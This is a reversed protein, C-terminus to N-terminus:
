AKGRIKEKLKELLGEAKKGTKIYNEFSKKFQKSVKLMRVYEKELEPDINSESLRDVLNGRYTEFFEKILPEDLIQKAKMGRQIDLRIGKEDKM